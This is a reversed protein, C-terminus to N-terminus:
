FHMVRFGSIESVEPTEQEKTEILEIDREKKTIRYTQGTKAQLLKYTAETSIAQEGAALRPKLEVCRVEGNYSVILLLLTQKEVVPSYVALLECEYPMGDELVLECENKHIERTVAEDMKGNETNKVFITLGSLLFFLFVTFIKFPVPLEDETTHTIEIEKFVPIKCDETIQSFVQNKGETEYYQKREKADKQKQVTELYVSQMENEENMYVARLMYSM